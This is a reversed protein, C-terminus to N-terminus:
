AAGGSTPDTVVHPEVAPPPDEVPVLASWDVAPPRLVPSGDPQVDGPDILPALSDPATV